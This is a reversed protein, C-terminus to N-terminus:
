YGNNHNVQDELQQCAQQLGAHQEVVKDSLNSILEIDRNIEEVAHSQDKATDALSMSTSIIGNVAAVISAFSICAEEVQQVCSEAEAHSNSLISITKEVTAQLHEIIDKIQSTSDSTRSALTRVEDAVVAFGRGQEGARAAEIAANLALLNTQGAIDTIVDLVMGINQSDKSLDTLIDTSNKVETALCDIAGISNTMILKGKDAEQQTENVTKSAEEAMSALEWISMSLNDLEKMIGNAKQQQDEMEKGIDDNINSVQAISSQMGQGLSLHSSELIQVAKGVDQLCECVNSVSARSMDDTSVHTRGALQCIDEIIPNFYKNVLYGYSLMVAIAPVFAMLYLVILSLMTLPLQSHLYGALMLSLFTMIFAITLTITKLSTPKLM